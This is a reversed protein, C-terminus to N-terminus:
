ASSRWGLASHTNLNATTALTVQPSPTTAGQRFQQLTLTTVSPTAIQSHHLMTFFDGVEDYVLGNLACINLTTDFYADRQNLSTAISSVANGVRGLTTSGEFVASIGGSTIYGYLNTANAITGNGYTGPFTTQVYAYAATGTFQVDIVQLSGVLAPRDASATTDFARTVHIIDGPNVYLGATSAGLIIRDTSGGGENHVQGIYDTSAVATINQAGAMKVQAAGGFGQEPIGLTNINRNGAGYPVNDTVWAAVFHKGDWVIQPHTYGGHHTIDYNSQIVYTSASGGFQETGQFLTVGVSSFGLTASGGTGNNIGACWLVAYTKGSFAVAIQVTPEIQDAVGASIDGVGCSVRAIETVTGDLITDNTLEWTQRSTDEDGPLSVMVIYVNRSTGSIADTIAYFAIPRSGNWVVVPKGPSLPSYQNPNVTDSASRIDSMFQFLSTGTLNAVGSAQMYSSRIKHRGLADTTRFDLGFVFNATDRLAEPISVTRVNPAVFFNRFGDTAFTNTSSAPADHRTYVAFRSKVSLINNNIPQEAQELRMNRIGNRFPGFSQRYFVTQNLRPGGGGLGSVHRDLFGYFNEGWSIACMPQEDNVLECVGKPAGVAVGQFGVDYEVRSTGYYASLHDTQMDGLNGNVSATMVRRVTEDEQPILLYNTDGNDDAFTTYSSSVLVRGDFSVRYGPNKIAGSVTGLVSTDMVLYWEYQNGAVLGPVAGTFRVTHEDVINFGDSVAGETQYQHGVTAAPIYIQSGTPITKRLFNLDVTNPADSGFYFTADSLYFNGGGTYYNGTDSHIRNHVPSVVVWDSGNWTVDPILAVPVPASTTTSWKYFFNRPAIELVYGYPTNRPRTQTGIVGTDTQWNPWPQSPGRTGLSLNSNFLDRSTQNSFNTSASNLDFNGGPAPVIKDVIEGTAGLLLACTSIHHRYVGRSQLPIHYPTLLFQEPFSTNLGGDFTTNNDKGFYATTNFAQFALLFNGGGYSLRVFDLERPTQIYHNAGPVIDGQTYIPNAGAVWTSPGTRTIFQGRLTCAPAFAWQVSGADAPYFNGDINKAVTIHGVVLPNDAIFGDKGYDANTTATKGLHLFQSSTIQLGHVTWDAISPDTLQSAATITGNNGTLLPHAQESWVMLFQGNADAAVDTSSVPGSGNTINVTELEVVGAGTILDVVAAEGGTGHAWYSVAFVANGGFAPTVSPDAAVSPHDSFQIHTGDTALVAQANALNLGLTLPNLSTPQVVQIMVQPGTAGPNDEVWAVMYQDTSPAHDIRPYHSATHLQGRTSTYTYLSRVSDKINIGLGPLVTTGDTRIENFFVANLTTDAHVVGWVRRVSNWVLDIGELRENTTFDFTPLSPLTSNSPEWNSDWVGWPANPGMKFMSSQYAKVVTADGEGEVIIGPPINIPHTLNTYNYFGRRLHLTGYGQFALGTAGRSGFPGILAEEIQPLRVGITSGTANFDGGPHQPPNTGDSITLETKDAVVVEFNRANDAANATPQRLMTFVNNSGAQSRYAFYRFPSTAVSPDIAGWETALSPDESANPARVFMANTGNTSGLRWANHALDFTVKGATLGATNSSRVGYLSRAAGKTLSTDVAWFTAYLSLRGTTPNTGGAVKIQGGIAPECSLRVVGAKFDFTMRQDGITISPNIIPDVATIPNTLDPATGTGNDPYLIIRYGLKDLGLRPGATNPLGYVADSRDVTSNLAYNAPVISRVRDANIQDVTPAVNNHLASGPVVMLFTQEFGTLGSGPVAFLQTANPRIIVYEYFDGDVVLVTGNGTFTNNIHTLTLTTPAVVNVTAAVFENQNFGSSGIKVLLIDNPLVSLTFNVGSLDQWTGAAIAQGRNGDTVSTPGYWKITESSVNSLQTLTGLGPGPQQPPTIAYVDDLLITPGTSYPEANIDGKGVVGEPALASDGVTLAKGGAFFDAKRLQELELRTLNSYSGTPTFTGAM